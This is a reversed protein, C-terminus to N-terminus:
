RLTFDASDGTGKDSTIRVKSGNTKVEQCNYGLDDGGWNLSRCLYGGEWSWKGTVDWTAGKGSISGDNLVNIRVLPRTLSKGSVLNMFDDRTTVQQYEAMAPTTLGVVAATLAIAFVKM